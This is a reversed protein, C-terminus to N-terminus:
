EARRLLRLEAAVAALQTEVARLRLCHEDIIKMSSEIAQVKRGVYIALAAATVLSGAQILVNGTLDIM